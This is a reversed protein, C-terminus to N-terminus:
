TVNVDETPAGIGVDPPAANVIAKLESGGPSIPQWNGTAQQKVFPIRPSSKNPRRPVHITLVPSFTAPTVSAVLPDSSSLVTVQLDVPILSRNQVCIELTASPAKAAKSSPSAKLSAHVAGVIKVWAGV